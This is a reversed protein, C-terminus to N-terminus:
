AGKRKKARARQVRERVDDRARRDKAKSDGEGQRLERVRDLAIVGHTDPARTPAITISGLVVQGNGGEWDGDSIKNRVTGNVIGALTAALDYDVTASRLTKLVKELRTASIELAKAFSKYGCARQYAAEARDLQVLRTLPDDTLPEDLYEQIWLPVHNTMLDDVVILSRNKTEGVSRPTLTGAGRRDPCESERSSEGRLVV